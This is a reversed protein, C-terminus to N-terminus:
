KNRMFWFFLFFALLAGAYIFYRTPEPTSTSHSIVECKEGVCKFIPIIQEEPIIVRVKQQPTPTPTIQSQAKQADLTKLQEELESIKRYQEWKQSTHSQATKELEKIKEVQQALVDQLKKKQKDECVEMDKFEDRVRKAQNMKDVIPEMYNLIEREAPTDTYASIGKTRRKDHEANYQALIAEYQITYQLVQNELKSKELQTICPM